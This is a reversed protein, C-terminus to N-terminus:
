IFISWKAVKRKDKGEYSVFKVLIRDGNNMIAGQSKQHIDRGTSQSEKINQQAEHYSHHLKPRLTEVFETWEKKM